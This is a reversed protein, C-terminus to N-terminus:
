FSLCDALMVQNHPQDATTLRHLSYLPSPWCWQRVPIVYVALVNNLQQKKQDNTQKNTQKPFHQKLANNFIKDFM